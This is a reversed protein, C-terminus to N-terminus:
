SSSRPGHPARRPRGGLAEQVKGFEGARGYADLVCNFSIADPEVRREAMARLVVSM